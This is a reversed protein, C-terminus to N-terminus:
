IKATNNERKGRGSILGVLATGRERSSCPVGDLLIHGSGLDVEAGFPMKIWAATQGCNFLRPGFIPHPEVKEEEKSQRRKEMM